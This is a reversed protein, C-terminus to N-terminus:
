GSIEEEFESCEIRWFGPERYLFGTEWRWDGRWWVFEAEVIRVSLIDFVVFWFM